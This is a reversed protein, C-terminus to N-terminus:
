PTMLDLELSVNLPPEVYTGSMRPYWTISVPSFASGIFVKYSTYLSILWGNDLRAIRCFYMTGYEIFIQKGEPTKIAPWARKGDIHSYAVPILGRERHDINGSKRVGLRLSNRGLLDSVGAVKHTNNNPQDYLVKWNEHLRFFFEVRGSVKGSLKPFGYPSATTCVITLM